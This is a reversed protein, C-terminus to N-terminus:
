KPDYEVHIHDGEDIVDYANGLRFRLRDIYLARYQKPINFTRLDLAEYSYHKSGVKHTGDNGSTIVVDFGLGEAANIAAAAIILIRPEVGPKVKLM